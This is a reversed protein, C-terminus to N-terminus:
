VTTRGRRTVMQAAGFFAAGMKARAKALAPRAHPRPAIVVNHDKGATSTGFELPAAYELNTGVRVVGRAEEVEMQISNRLQGTDPAPPQGPSSAVHTKSGRPYTAGTGPTSLVEKWSAVLEMGAASLMEQRAEAIREATEKLSETLERFGTSRLASTFDADAM